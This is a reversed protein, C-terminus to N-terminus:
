MGGEVGAGAARGALFGWRVGREGTLVRGRDADVYCREWEEGAGALGYRDM